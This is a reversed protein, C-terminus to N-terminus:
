EKELPVQWGLFRVWAVSPNKKKKLSFRVYVIFSLHMAAFLLLSWVRLCKVEFWLATEWRNISHFHSSIRCEDGGVCRCM